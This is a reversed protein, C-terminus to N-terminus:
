DKVQFEDSSAILRPSAEGNRVRQAKPNESGRVKQTTERRPSAERSARPRGSAPRDPLCRSAEADADALVSLQLGASSKRVPFGEVPEALHESPRLRERRLWSRHAQRM